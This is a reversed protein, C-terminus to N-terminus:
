LFNEFVTLIKFKKTIQALVEFIKPQISKQARIKYLNFFKPKPGGNPGGPGRFTLIRFNKNKFTSGEFNSIVSMKPDQNWILQFNKTQPGWDAGPGGFTWFKSIKTKEVYSRWFKITYQNPPGSKMYTWLDINWDGSPRNQGGSHWLKM